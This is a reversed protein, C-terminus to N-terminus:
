MRLHPGSVLDTTAVADVRRRLHASLAPALCDGIFASTGAGSLVIRLSPDALLPALFGDLRTRASAILSQVELWVTPQQAIERATWAAGRAELDSQSLGPLVNEM